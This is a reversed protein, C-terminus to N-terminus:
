ASHEKGLYAEIVLPNARIEAPTGEAIKSGYNLVIIRHALDMIMRMKHEILCVTIGSQHIKRILTTIRDTDEQILGGTPEDLLIIKPNGALAVGISLCKQEVQSLTSVFDFAKSELGIFQLVEMVKGETKEKDEKWRPSHLLTSWLGSGTRMKHGIALNDVVRLQDFLATTQFTRSIGKEAIAHPKAHTIETGQLTIHGSTARMLGSILGFLVSKGAGNPGIITLIEGEQIEFSVKNVAVLGEFNKLLEEAKLLVTGV